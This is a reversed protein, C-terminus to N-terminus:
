LRKPAPKPQESGRCLRESRVGTRCERRAGDGRSQKVDWFGEAHGWQMVGSCKEGRWLTILIRADVIWSVIPKMWTRRASAMRSKEDTKRM